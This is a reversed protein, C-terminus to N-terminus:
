EAKVENEQKPSPRLSLRVEFKEALPDLVASKFIVYKKSAKAVAAAIASALPTGVQAVLRPTQNRLKTELETLNTLSIQVNVASDQLNVKADKAIGIAKLGSALYDGLANLQVQALDLHLSQELAALIESGPADLLIGRDEPNKGVTVFIRRSSNLALPPSLTAVTEALPVFVRPCNGLGSVPIYIGRDDLELDELLKEVNLLSPLSSDVALSSAYSEASEPLYLVMIGILLAALGFALMPVIGLLYSFAGVIGGFTVMFVGIPRRQGVHRSGLGGLRSLRVGCRRCFNDEPALDTSCIWCTEQGM